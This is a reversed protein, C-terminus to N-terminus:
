IGIQISKILLEIKDKAGLKMRCRSMLSNVATQTKFGMDSKIQRYDKGESNLKLCQRERFTLGYRGCVKGDGICKDHMGCDFFEKNLKGSPTIDPTSDLKGRNCFNYTELMKSENNIGMQNLTKVAKRDAYLETYLSVIIQIPLEHFPRVKGNQLWYCRGFQEPNAFLEINCDEPLLGAPINM